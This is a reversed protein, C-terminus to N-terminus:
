PQSDARREKTLSSSAFLLELLSVQLTYVRKGDADEYYMLYMRAALGTCFCFVVSQVQSRRPGARVALGPALSDCSLPQVGLGAGLWGRQM